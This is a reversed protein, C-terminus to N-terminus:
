HLQCQTAQKEYPREGERGATAVVLAAPNPRRAAFGMLATSDPGGSVALLVAEPLGALIREAEEPSLPEHRAGTV